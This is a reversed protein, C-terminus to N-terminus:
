CHKDFSLKDFIINSSNFSLFHYMYKIDNNLTDFDNHVNQPNELKVMIWRGM